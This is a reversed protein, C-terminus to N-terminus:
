DTAADQSVPRAAENLLIRWTPFRKAKNESLHVVVKILEPDFYSAKEMLELAQKPEYAKGPQYKELGAEARKKDLEVQSNTWEKRTKEGLAYPVVYDVSKKISGGEENEWAYLDRGHEALMIALDIPEKLSSGHYTLTDRRKLDQSTGDAYLSESVFRKVGQRAEEIWKEEHLILGAQGLIRLSKGYRNTFHDSKQVAQLHAQGMKRVWADVQKQQEPDMQDRLVLYACLLPFFKNENVDNGTVKYTSSWALIYTQLTSAAKDDGTILWYNLLHAVDAMDSLKKVCAIRRPDTNVLGEYHIVEVPQPKKDLLTTVEQKIKEALVAAEQDEKVLQRLVERQQQNLPLTTAIEFEGPENKAQLNAPLALLLFILLLPLFINSMGLDM